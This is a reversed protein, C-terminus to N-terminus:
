LLCGKQIACEHVTPSPLHRSLICRFLPSGWVLEWVVPLAERCPGQPGDASPFLRYYTTLPLRRADVASRAATLLRHYAAAVATRM